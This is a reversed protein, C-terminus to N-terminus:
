RKKYKEFLFGQTIAKWVKNMEEETTNDNTIIEILEENTMKIYKELEKYEEYRRRKQKAVKLFKDLKDITKM